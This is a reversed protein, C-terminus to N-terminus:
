PREELSVVTDLLSTTLWAEPWGPRRHAEWARLTSRGLCLVRAPARADAPLHSLFAEVASPSSFTACWPQRVLPALSAELGAPVTTRYAPERQVPGVQALLQLAEGQELTAPGADSTPWRVHWRPQGGLTWAARVAQALAVAGGQAVVACSVGQSALLNATTPAMAAVLGARDPQALYCVAAHKSSLVTLPVGAEARWRPWPLPAFEICPAPRATVGRRALLACDAEAELAERTILWNM